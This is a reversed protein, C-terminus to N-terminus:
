IPRAGSLEQFLSVDSLPMTPLIDRLQGENSPDLDIGFAQKYVDSSVKKLADIAYQEGGLSVINLMEAVKTVSLTFLHDIPDGLLASLKENDYIGDQREISEVCAAIKFVDEKCDCEVEILQRYAKKAEASAVKTSRYWLKQKLESLDPYYLGAYKYVLEPLEDVEYQDAKKVFAEAIQVRHPFLFNGISEVFLQASKVFDDKTKVPFVQYDVEAVKITTIPEKSYDKSDRTSAQKEYSDLQDKIGFLGAAKNIRDAVHTVYSSGWKKELSAKKKFFYANSVYVRAPSNIPYAKNYDDAFAEKDFHRIVELDDLEACKVSEPIDICNMLCVLERHSTDHSQDLNLSM